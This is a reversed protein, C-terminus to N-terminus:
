NQTNSKVTLTNEQSSTNPKIKLLFLAPLGIIVSVCYQNIRALLSITAGNDSGAVKFLYTFASETIGLGGPTLPVANLFLAIPNIIFHALVPLNDKILIGIIVFNTITIAQSFLSILLCISMEKPFCAFRQLTTIIGQIVMPLCKFLAAVPAFKLVTKNCLLTLGFTVTILTTMSVLVYSNHISDLDFLLGLVAAMSALLILAYIGIVRDIFISTFADIKRDKNQLCFYSARIADIGILGPLVLGLCMSALNVRLAESFGINFGVIRLLRWMRLSLLLAGIFLLIADLCLLIITQKNFHLRQIIDVNLADSQYLFYLLTSALTLKFVLILNKKLM